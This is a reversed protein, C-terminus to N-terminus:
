RVSPGARGERPGELRHWPCAATGEKAEAPISEESLVLLHSLGHLAARGAPQVLTGLPM